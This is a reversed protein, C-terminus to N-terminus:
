VTRAIKREPKCALRKDPSGSPGQEIALHNVSDLPSRSLIGGLVERLWRLRRKTM